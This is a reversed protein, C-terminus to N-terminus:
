ACRSVQIVEALRTKSDDMFKYGNLKQHMMDIANSKAPGWTAGDKRDYFHYGHYNRVWGMM